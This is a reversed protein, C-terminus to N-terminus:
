QTQLSLQHPLRSHLVPVWEPAIHHGLPNSYPLSPLSLFSPINHSILTITYWSVLMAKYFNFSLDTFRNQTVRKKLFKIVKTPLSDPNPPNLVLVSVCSSQPSKLSCFCRILDRFTFYFHCKEKDVHFLFETDYYTNQQKPLFHPLSQM